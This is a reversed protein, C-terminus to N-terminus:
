NNTKDRAALYQARGISELNMLSHARSEALTSIIDGHLYHVRYHTHNCYWTYSYITKIKKVEALHKLM